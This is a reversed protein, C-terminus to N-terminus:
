KLTCDPGVIESGKEFYEEELHYQVEDLFFNNEVAAEKFYEIEGVVKRKFEKWPDKYDLTRERM